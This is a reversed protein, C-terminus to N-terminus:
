QRIDFFLLLVYHKSQFRIDVHERGRGGEPDDLSLGHITWPYDMSKQIHLPYGLIDM